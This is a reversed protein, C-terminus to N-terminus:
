SEQRVLASTELAGNPSVGPQQCCQQPLDGWYCQCVLELIAFM